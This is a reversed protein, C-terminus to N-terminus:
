IFIPLAQTSNGNIKSNIVVCRPDCKSYRSCVQHGADLFLCTISFNLTWGPNQDRDPICANRESFVQIRKNWNALIPARNPWEEGLYEDMWKMVVGLMIGWIGVQKLFHTSVLISVSFANIQKWLSSYFQIERLGM